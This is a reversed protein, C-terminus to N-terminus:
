QESELRYAHRVSNGHDLISEILAAAAVYSSAAGDAQPVAKRITTAADELIARAKTTDIIESEVLSILLSECISLTAIGAAESGTRM